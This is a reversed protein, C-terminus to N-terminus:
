EFAAPSEWHPLEMREPEFLLGKMYRSTKGAAALRVSARIFRRAEEPTRIDRAVEDALNLVLFNLSERDNQATLENNYTDVGIGNDLAEVSEIRNRPVYYSVAQALPARSEDKYVICRKWPTKERWTLAEATTQDPTGYRELLLLALSRSREPWDAVHVISSEQKGIWDTPGTARSRMEYSVSGVGAMVTVAALSLIVNFSRRDTDM